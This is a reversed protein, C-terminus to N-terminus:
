NYIIEVNDLYSALEGIWRMTEKSDKAKAAEEIAKGIESVYDFGYGGGAGKMDHGLRRIAEFDGQNLAEMLKIIDKKRTELFVPVLEAVDSKIQVIMKNSEANNM